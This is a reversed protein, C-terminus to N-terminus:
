ICIPMSGSFHHSDINGESEQPSDESHKKTDLLIKYQSQSAYSSVTAPNTVITFRSTNILKRHFHQYCCHTNFNSNFLKDEIYTIKFGRKKSVVYCKVWVLHSYYDPKGIQTLNNLDLFYSGSCLAM